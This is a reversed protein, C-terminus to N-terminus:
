AFGRIHIWAELGALFGRVYEVGLADIREVLGPLDRERQRSLDEGALWGQARGRTYENM